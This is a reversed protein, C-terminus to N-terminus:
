DQINQMSGIFIIIIAWNFNSKLLLIILKAVYRCFYSASSVMKKDGSSKITESSVIALPLLKIDLVRSLSNHKDASKM